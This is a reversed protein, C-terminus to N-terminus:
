SSHPRAQPLRGSAFADVLQDMEHLCKLPAAEDGTEWTWEQYEVEGSVFVDHDLNDYWVEMVRGLDATLAIETRWGNVTAHGGEWGEYSHAVVISGANRAVASDITAHLDVLFKPRVPETLARSKRPRRSM